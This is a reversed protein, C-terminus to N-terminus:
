TSLEKELLAYLAPQEAAQVTVESTTDRAKAYDLLGGPAIHSQIEEVQANTTAGNLALFRMAIKSAISTKTSLVRDRDKNVRIVKTMSPRRVISTVNRVRLASSSEVAAPNAGQPKSESAELQAVKKTTKKKAIM